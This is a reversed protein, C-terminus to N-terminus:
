LFHVANPAAVLRSCPAGLSFSPRRPHAPHHRGRRASASCAATPPARPAPATGMLRLLEGVDHSGRRRRLGAHRHLVEGSGANRRLMNHNRVSATSGNNLSVETAINDQVVTGKGAPDSSKRDLVILGCPAYSCGTGYVLTNHRITSGNDSYLEIGWRGNVLDIVNDEILANAIGDYAVIGDATNHIYNGRVM